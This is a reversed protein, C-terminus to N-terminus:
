QYSGERIKTVSLGENQLMAYVAGKTRNFKRAARPVSYGDKTLTIIDDLDARTTTSASVDGCRCLMEFRKQNAAFFRSLSSMPHEETSDIAIM